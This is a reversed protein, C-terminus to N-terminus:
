QKKMREVENLRDYMLRKVDDWKYFHPAQADLPLTVDRENLLVRVLVDADGKGRYLVLMLNAAMPTIKYGRWVESVCEISERGKGLSLPLGDVGLLTVLPVIFYDHGFCLDAVADNKGQLAADAKTVFHDFLIRSKSVVNALIPHAASASRYYWACNDHQYMVYQEDSTFVENLLTRDNNGFNQVFALRRYINAMIKFRSDDFLAFFRAPETFLAQEAHSLDQKEGWEILKKFVVDDLFDYYADREHEPFQPNCDSQPRVLAMDRETSEMDTRLRPNQEKLGEVFAVMSMTSRMRTSSVSRVLVDGGFLPSLRKGFRGGIGKHQEYGVRTLDGRRLKHYEYYWDMYEKVRKGLPTLLNHEAAKRFYTYTELPYIDRSEFRSGHRAYGTMYVPKYGKPAVAEPMTYVQGTYVTMTPIIGYPRADIEQRSTQAMAVMCLGCCLLSLIVKKM